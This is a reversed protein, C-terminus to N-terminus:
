IITFVPKAWICSSATNQVLKPWNWSFKCLCGTATSTAESSSLDEPMSTAANTLRTPSPGITTIKFLELCGISEIPVLALGKAMGQVLLCNTCTRLPATCLASSLWCFLGSVVGM